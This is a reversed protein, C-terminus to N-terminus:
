SEMDGNADQLDQYTNPLPLTLSARFDSLYGVTILVKVVGKRM